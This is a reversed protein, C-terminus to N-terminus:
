CAVGAPNVICDLNVFYTQELGASGPPPKAPQGFWAPKSRVLIRGPQPLWGPKAVLTVAVSFYTQVIASHVKGIAFTGRLQRGAARRLHDVFWTSGAPTFRVVVARGLLWGRKYHVSASSVLRVALGSRTTHQGAVRLSLASPRVTISTAWRNVWGKPHVVPKPKVVVIPKIKAVPIPQSVPAPPNPKPKPAIVKLFVDGCLNVRGVGVRTQLGFGSTDRSLPKCAAPRPMAESRSPASFPNALAAAVILLSLTKFM